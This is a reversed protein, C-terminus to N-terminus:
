YIGFLLCFFKIFDLLQILLDASKFWFDGFISLFYGFHPMESTFSNHYELSDGSLSFDELEKIRSIEFINSDEQHSFGVLFIIETAM